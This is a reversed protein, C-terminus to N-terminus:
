PDMEEPECRLVRAAPDQRYFEALVAYLEPHQQQLSVPLDFFGETAVAFFEAANTAGYADLLTPRGQDARERLLSFERRLVEALRRSAPGDPQPPRGDVAGDAMDIKHAFEHYVVNHGRGPYRAQTLAQDWVLVVPGHLRAEGLLAAPEETIAGALVASAQSGRRMVTSPYVIISHVDRYYDHDLGLLLLCAQAAITVKVDEAVKLGGAGEFEKDVLFVKILDELRAREADDLFCWHAVRNSLLARWGQPFPAERAKRRRRQRPTELRM